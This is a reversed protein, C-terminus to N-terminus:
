MDKRLQFIVHRSPDLLNYRFTRQGIMQLKNVRFMEHWVDLKMYNYPLRVGYSSNGLHDVWKILNYDVSNNWYHDKILVLNKSVRRAERLIIDPHEDHHLVDNIMVADFSNDPYPLTKGDYITIPIYTKIQPYVDVGTINVKNLKKQLENALGGDGAGIDLVMESNDLYAALHKM